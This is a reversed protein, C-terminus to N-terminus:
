IQDRAQSRWLTKRKKLFYFFFGKFVKRMYLVSIWLYFCSTSCVLGHLRCRARSPLLFAPGVMNLVTLVYTTINEPGHNQMMKRDVVVLTEVTLEQNRHSKLLSRRHRSRSTYEDPLVFLDERPPKPM